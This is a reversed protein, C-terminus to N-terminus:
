SEWGCFVASLNCLAGSGQPESWAVQPAWLLGSLPILHGFLFLFPTRAWTIMNHHQLKIHTLKRFGRFYVRISYFLFIIHEYRRWISKVQMMFSVISGIFFVSICSPYLSVLGLLIRSWYMCFCVMSLELWEFRISEKYIRLPGVWIWYLSNLDCFM